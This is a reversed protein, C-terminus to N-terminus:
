ECGIPGPLAERVLGLRKNGIDPGQLSLGTAWALHGVGSVRFAPGLVLAWSTFLIATAIVLGDLVGRLATVVEALGIDLDGEAMGGPVRQEGDAAADLPAAVVRLRAQAHIVPDLDPIASGNM